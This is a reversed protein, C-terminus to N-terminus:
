YRLSGIITPRQSGGFSSYHTMERAFANQSSQYRTKIVELPCTLVAGLTGALSSFHLNSRNIKKRRRGELLYIFM